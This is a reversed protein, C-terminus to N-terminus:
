IHKFLKCAAAKEDVRGGARDSKDNNCKSSKLWEICDGCMNAQQEVQQGAVNQNESM